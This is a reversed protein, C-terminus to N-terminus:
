EKIIAGHANTLQTNLTAYEERLVRLSEELSNKEQNLEAIEKVLSARQASQLKVEAQLQQLAKQTRRHEVRIIALNIM